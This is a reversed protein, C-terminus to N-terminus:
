QPVRAGFFLSRSAGKATDSFGLSRYLGIADHNDENTDLEVRHCGRERARDLARQVLARGLGLRRAEPAVYLDELWCDEAATWVSHRYRLQCIGAAPAHDDEAALWFETDAREILRQVSALFSDESPSSRAQHDRFKVLLGAVAAAEGPDALWVSSV